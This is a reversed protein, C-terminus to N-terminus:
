KRGYYYSSLAYPHTYYYGTYGTPFYGHHTYYLYADSDAKSIPESDASRKGLYHGYGYTYPYGHTYYYGSYGVPWTGYTNYYILAEADAESKGEPRSDPEAITSAVLFLAM